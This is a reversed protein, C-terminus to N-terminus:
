RKGGLRIAFQVGVIRPEPINALVNDAPSFSNPTVISADV